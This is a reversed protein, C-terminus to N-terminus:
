PHTEGWPGAAMNISAVINANLGERGSFCNDLTIKGLESRM